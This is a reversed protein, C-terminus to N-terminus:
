VRKMFRTGTVEYGIAEYFKHADPRYNGSTLTVRDAGHDKAWEEIQQMLFAGVGRGRAKEDVVLGTVRVQLGDRELNHDACAAGLGVVAGDADAVFVTHRPDDLARRLRDVMDDPGTPYGLQTVLSALTTADSIEAHRVKLV